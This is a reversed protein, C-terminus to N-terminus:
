LVTSVDKEDQEKVRIGFKRGLRTLSIAKQCTRYVHQAAALSDASIWIVSFGEHPGFGSAARPECYLGAHAIRQMHMLASAPVRVFCHFAVAKATSYQRNWIDLLLRDVTEDVAAHFRSCTQDCSPDRCLNLGAINQLLTRVPAGVVEDWNLATEDRYLSM